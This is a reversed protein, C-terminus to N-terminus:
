RLAVRQVRMNRNQYFEIFEELNKRHAGQFAYILQDSDGVVSVHGHGAITLLVGNQVENTDQFEDVLVHDYVNYLSEALISNGQLLVYGLHVMDSLLILSSERLRKQFERFLELTPQGFSTLYAEPDKKTKALEIM